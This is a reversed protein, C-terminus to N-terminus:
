QRDLWDDLIEFITKRLAASENVLHHRAEKLYHVVAHPFLREIFPINFRWDVTTDEKGQIILFRANAPQYSKMETIWEMLAGVWTVSVTQSQLPDAQELFALFAKDHSNNWFVRKIRKIFFL